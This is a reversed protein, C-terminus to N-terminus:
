CRLVLGCLLNHQAPTPIIRGQAKHRQSLTGITHANKRGKVNVRPVPAPPLTPGRSIAALLLLVCALRRWLNLVPAESPAAAKNRCLAPPGGDSRTCQGDVRVDPLVEHAALGQTVAYHLFDQTPRWISIVLCSQIQMNGPRSTRRHVAPATAPEPLDGRQSLPGWFMRPGQMEPPHPQPMAVACKRALGARLAWLHSGHSKQEQQQM